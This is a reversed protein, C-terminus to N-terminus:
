ASGRSRAPRRRRDSSGDGTEEFPVCVRPGGRCSGKVPGSGLVTIAALGVAAAGLTRLRRIFALSVGATAPLGLSTFLIAMAGMVALRNGAFARRALAWHSVGGGRDAFAGRVDRWSWLWAAVLGLALTALALREGTGGAPAALVREPRAMLIWLLGGWVGLAM